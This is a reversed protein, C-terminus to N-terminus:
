KQGGKLEKTYRVGTAKFQELYDVEGDVVYGCKEYLVRAVANKEFTWICLENYGYEKAREEFFDIMLAGIGQKQFFPDVYLEYLEFADVKDEDSCPCIKLMAKVIGDDFVYHEANGDRMAEELSNIQSTVLRENFLYEDSIIGRYASRWGFVIIEAVRPIDAAEM